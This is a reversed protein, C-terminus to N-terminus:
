GSSRAMALAAQTCKAAHARRSPHPPRRGELRGGEAPEEPHPRLSRTIPGVEEIRRVRGEQRAGGMQRDRGQPSRRAGAAFRRHLPLRAGTRARADGAIDIVTQLDRNVKDIIAKPTGKPAFFGYWSSEDQMKVGLENLTPMDPLLKSRSPGNVRSRACRAPAACAAAFRRRHHVLGRHPRLVRRHLDAVDASYPVHQMKIGTVESFLVTALHASSGIGVSAYNLKGPNAKAYDIVEKVSKFPTANAVMFVELATGVLMIPEFSTVPHFARPRRCRSTPASRRRASTCRTATPRRRDGRGGRRHQRQRRPPERGRGAPGVDPQAQRRDAPGAHRDRRRALVRDPDAGSPRSLEAGSARVSVGLLARPWSCRPSRNGTAHLGGSKRAATEASAGAHRRLRTFDIRCGHRFAAIRCCRGNRRGGAEPVKQVIGFKPALLWPRTTRRSSSRFQLVAVAADDGRALALDAHEVLVAGEVGVAVDAQVLATRGAFAQHDVVHDVDDVRVAGVLALLEAVLHVEDARPVAVFVVQLGAFAIPSRLCFSRLNSTTWRPSSM